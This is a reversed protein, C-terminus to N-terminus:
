TVLNIRYLVWDTRAHYSTRSHPTSLLGISSRDKFLVQKENDESLKQSVTRPFIQTSTM